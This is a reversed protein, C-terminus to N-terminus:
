RRVRSRKLSVSREALCTDVGDSGIHGSKQRIHGTEPPIHGSKPRIHGGKPSIHGNAPRIHGRHRRSQHAQLPGYPKCEPTTAPRPSPAPVRPSSNSLLPPHPNLPIQQAPSGESQPLRSRLPTLLSLPHGPLTTIALPKPPRPTPHGSSGEGLGEGGPSPNPLLPLNSSWPFQVLTERTPRSLRRAPLSPMRRRHKSSGPRISPRDHPEPSRSPPM